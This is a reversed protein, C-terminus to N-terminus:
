LPLIRPKSRAAERKRKLAELRNKMVNVKMDAEEQAREEDMMRDMILEREEQEKRRREAEEDLKTPEAQSEAPDQIPIGEPVESALEPEAFVTAREYAEREDPANVVSQQFNIWEQDLVTDSAGQTPRAVTQTEKPEDLEDDDGSDDDEVSIPAQSPDSFFDTPFGGKASKAVSTGDLKQKKVVTSPKFEEEDAKRKSAVAEEGHKQEERLREEEKLRLVNMRHAKSGLHGDWASAHKVPTGCIVCRLQGNSTYSALPHNIRAEQRKAKLLTRAFAM